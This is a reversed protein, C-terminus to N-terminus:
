ADINGRAHTTDRKAVAQQTCEYTTQRPGCDRALHTSVEMPPSSNIVASSRVSWQIVDSQHYGALLQM